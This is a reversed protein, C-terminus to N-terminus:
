DLSINVFNESHLSHEEPNNLTDPIDPLEIDESDEEEQQPPAGLAASPPRRLAIPRPTDLSFVRRSIM